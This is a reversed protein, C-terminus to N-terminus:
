KLSRYYNNYESVGFAFDMTKNELHKEISESSIFIVDSVEGEGKNILELKIDKKVFFLYNYQNNKYAGDKELMQKKYSCILKLDEPSVEIGIEEAIERSAAESPTEGSKVHGAAAVDWAEPKSESKPSRKQLLIEGKENVIWIISIRHWDGDKHVLDKPKKEGTLKDFEDCIDLYEM